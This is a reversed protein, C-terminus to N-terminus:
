RSHPASPHTTVNLPVTTPQCDAQRQKTARRTTDAKSRQGRGARGRGCVDVHRKGRHVLRQLQARAQAQGAVDALLLLLRLRKHALHAAERTCCTGGPPATHDTAAPHAGLECARVLRGLLRQITISSCVAVGDLSIRSGHKWGVCIMSRISSVGMASVMTPRGPLPSLTSCRLRRVMATSSTELGEITNASSGVLPPNCPVANLTAQLQRRVRVPCPHNELM